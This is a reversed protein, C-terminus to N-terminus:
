GRWETLFALETEWRAEDPQEAPNTLYTEVRGLWRGAADQAWVVGNRKGWDLFARTSEQLGDYRGTHVAVLYRGAPIESASVREDGAAAGEVPVGVEIDIGNVMDSTDHYRVFPAGSPTLGHGGVWGFIEPFLRDLTPGFPITVTAKIGVYRRAARDAFSPESLPM